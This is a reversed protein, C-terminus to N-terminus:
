VLGDVASHVSDAPGEPGSLTDRRGQPCCQSPSESRGQQSAGRTQPASLAVEQWQRSSLKMGRTVHTYSHSTYPSFGRWWGEGWAEETDLASGGGPERVQTPAVM